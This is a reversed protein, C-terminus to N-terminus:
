ATSSSRIRRTRTPRTSSSTSAPRRASSISSTACARTTSASSSRRAIPPTSSRSARRGRRSGSATRNGAAPAVERHPRPDIRELEAVRTAALRNSGDMEVAKKYEILAGDIDSGEARARARAIIHDRAANQMARELEIKYEANDPSAQLAQPYHQVATDWDGTRSAERGKRFSRGATCGSVLVTVVLLAILRRRM